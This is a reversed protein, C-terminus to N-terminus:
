VHEDGVLINLYEFFVSDTGSHALFYGPYSTTINHPM